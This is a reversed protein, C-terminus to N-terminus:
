STGNTTNIFIMFNNIFTGNSSPILHVTEVTLNSPFILTKSILSYNKSGKLNLKKNKAFNIANQWINTDDTVSDFKAGFQAVLLTDNVIIEAILSTNNLAIIDMENATDQNTLTRILYEGKGGDNPTYYGKTICYMGAKLNNANKMAYVNDFVYVKEQALAKEFNEM